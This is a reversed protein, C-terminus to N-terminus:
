GAGAATTGEIVEIVDGDFVTIARMIRKGPLPLAKLRYSRGTIRRHARRGPTQGMEGIASQTVPAEAM